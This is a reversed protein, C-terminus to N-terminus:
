GVERYLAKFYTRSQEDIYAIEYRNPFEPNAIAFPVMENGTQVSRPRTRMMRYLTWLFLVIGLFGGATGSTGAIVGSLIGFYSLLWTALPVGMALAVITLFAPRFRLSFRRASEEDLTLRALDSSSIKPYDPDFNM